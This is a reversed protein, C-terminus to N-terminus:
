RGTSARSRIPNHFAYQYLRPDVPASNHYFIRSKTDNCSEYYRDLVDITLVCNLSKRDDAVIVLPKDIKESQFCKGGLNKMMHELQAKSITHSHRSSTKNMGTCIHFNLDKFIPSLPNTLKDIDTYDSDIDDQQSIELKSQKRSSSFRARKRQASMINFNHKAEADTKLSQLEKESLCTKHDKDDRIRQFRPFRLTINSAFQDSPVIQAAKVQIILSDEPLIWVDPKMLVRRASAAFVYHRAAANANWTHWKTACHGRITAYDQANFGGGVRCFTAYRPDHDDSETDDIRLACLFSSVKGGRSGDGYFGGVILIDLNEGFENMYEPKLKIWADNRENTKYVSNPMKIVLGESGTQVVIKLQKQIEDASSAIVHPVIELRRPVPRVVQQLAKYRDHLSYNKLSHGNLYLIDFM